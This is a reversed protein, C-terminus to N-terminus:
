CSVTLYFYSTDFPIPTGNAGLTWLYVTVVNGNFTTASAYVGIGYYTTVSPACYTVDRDITVRFVGSSVRTNSLIRTTGDFIGSNAILLGQIQPVYYGTVDVIVQVPSGHNRISLDRATGSAALPLVPNATINQRPQYTIFNTDPEATGAAFATMYGAGTPAVATVNTSVATAGVPIGCGGSTGGQAPFGTTGRVYFTGTASNALAGTGHRTDVVRCPTVPHFLTETNTPRIAAPDFVRGPVQAPTGPPPPPGPTPNPATASASSMGLVVATAAVTVMTAWRSRTKM